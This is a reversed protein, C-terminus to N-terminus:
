RSTESQGGAEEEGHAHVEEKQGDEKHSVEPSSRHSDSCLLAARL